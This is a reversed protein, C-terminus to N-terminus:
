LRPTVALLVLALQLGLMIITAWRWAAAAGAMGRRWTWGAIMGSAVGGLAMTYIGNARVLLLFLGGLVLAQVIMAAAFWVIPVPRYASDPVEWDPLSADPRSIRRDGALIDEKRPDPFRENPM